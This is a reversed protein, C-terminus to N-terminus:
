EMQGSSEMSIQYQLVLVEEVSRPQYQATRMYTNPGNVLVNVCSFRGARLGFGGYVGIWLM